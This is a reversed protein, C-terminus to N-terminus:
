GVNKISAQIGERQKKAEDLSIAGIQLLEDLALNFIDLLNEGTPTLIGRYLHYRGSELFDGSCNAIMGYVYQRPSIGKNNIASTFKNPNQLIAGEVERKVLGFALCNFKYDAEDLVGLGAKVEKSAFLKKLINM